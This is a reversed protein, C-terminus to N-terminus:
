IFFSLFPLLFSLLISKFTTIIIITFLYFYIIGTFVCLCVCVSETEDQNLQLFMKHCPVISAGFPWANM